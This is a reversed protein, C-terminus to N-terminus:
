PIRPSLYFFWWNTLQHNDIHQEKNELVTYRKKIKDDLWGGSVLTM